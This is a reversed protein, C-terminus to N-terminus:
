HADEARRDGDGGACGTALGGGDRIPDAGAECGGGLALAFGKRVGYADGGAENHHAQRPLGPDLDQWWSSCVSDDCSAGVRDPPGHDM